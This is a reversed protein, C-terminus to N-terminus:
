VPARGPTAAAQRLESVTVLEFGKARLGRILQPLQRIAVLRDDEGVDHALMVTGPTAKNVIYDVLGPPNERYASELMQLSWLTVDYGMEAAALMTSGGMHGYPPRLLRPERGTGRKIASHARRIDALVEDFDRKALDLHDYSHNGFEHDGTRGHIVKAYKEVRSGVLFFTAKAREAALTDLVEKTWRPAPGDDFTLAVLKETTNVGWVVEVNPHRPATRRDAHTAPAPGGALPLPVDASFSEIVRETGLTAGVGGALSAAAALL